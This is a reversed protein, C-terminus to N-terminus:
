FEQEQFHLGKFQIADNVIKVVKSADADFRYRSINLKDDVIQIYSYSYSKGNALKVEKREKNRFSTVTYTGFNDKTGFILSTDMKFEGNKRNLLKGIIGRFKSKM